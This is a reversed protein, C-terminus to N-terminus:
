LLCLGVLGIISKRMYDTLEEKVQALLQPDTQDTRVVVMVLSENTRQSERIVLYRWFGEQKRRDYPLLKESHHTRIFQELLAM